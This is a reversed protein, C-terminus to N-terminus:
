EWAYLAGRCIALEPTEARICFNVEGRGWKKPYEYSEGLLGIHIHFYWPRPDLAFECEADTLDPGVVCKGGDMFHGCALNFSGDATQFRAVLQELRRLIKGAFYMNTAFPLPMWEDQGTSHNRAFMWYGGRSLENIGSKYTPKPEGLVIVTVMEELEENTLKLIEDLEM